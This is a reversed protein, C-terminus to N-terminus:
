LIQELSAQFLGAMREMITRSCVKAQLPISCSGVSKRTSVIVRLGCSIITNMIPPVVYSSALVIAKNFWSEAEVPARTSSPPVHTWLEDLYKM